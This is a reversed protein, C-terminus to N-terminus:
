RGDKHIGIAKVLVGVTLMPIPYCSEAFHPFIFWNYPSYDLSPFSNGFLLISFILSALVPVLFLGLKIRKKEYSKLAMLQGIVLVLSIVNLVLLPSSLGVLVISAPQEYEATFVFNYLPSVFGTLSFDLTRYGGDPYFHGTIQGFTVVSPLFMGTYLHFDHVNKSLKRSGQGDFWLRIPYLLSAFILLSIAFDRLEFFGPLIRVGWADWYGGGPFEGGWMYSEALTSAFYLTFFGFIILVNIAIDNVIDLRRGRKTELFRGVQNVAAV